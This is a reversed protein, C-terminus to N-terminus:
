DDGVYDDKEMLSADEVIEWEAIHELSAIMVKAQEATIDGAEERCQVEAILDEKPARRAEEFLKYRDPKEDFEDMIQTTLGIAQEATIDGAEERCQVEAILDEKPARRAEEFLKSEDFEDMIQTTLGIAQEATIDGAEERCQVEAILDEKPARRAEEFLKYRDPKEDFEDIIQTTLGIHDTTSPTLMQGFIENFEDFRDALLSIGWRQYITHFIKHCEYEDPIYKALKAVCTEYIDHIQVLYESILKVDEEFVERNGDAKTAM